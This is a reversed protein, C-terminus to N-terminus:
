SLEKYVLPKVESPNRYGKKPANFTSRYARSYRSQNAASKEYAKAVQNLSYGEAAPIAGKLLRNHALEWFQKQEHLLAAKASALNRRLLAGVFRVQTMASKASKEYLKAIDEVHEPTVTGAGMSHKVRRAYSKIEDPSYASQMESTHGRLYDAVEQYSRAEASFRGLERQHQEHQKAIEGEAQQWCVAHSKKHSLKLQQEMLYGPSGPNVSIPAAEKCTHIVRERLFRSRSQLNESTAKISKPKM